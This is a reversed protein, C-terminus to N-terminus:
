KPNFELENLIEARNNEIQGMPKPSQILVVLHDHTLDLNKDWTGSARPWKAQAASQRLPQYDADPIVPVLLGPFLPRLLSYKLQFQSDNSRSKSSFLIEGSVTDALITFGFNDISKYSFFLYFRLRESTTYSYLCVFICRNTLHFIYPLWMGVLNFAM